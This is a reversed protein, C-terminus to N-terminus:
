NRLLSHLRGLSAAGPDRTFLAYREKECPDLVARCFGKDFYGESDRLSAIAKCATLAAAGKVRSSNVTEQLADDCGTEAAQSRPVEGKGNGNALDRPNRGGKRFYSYQPIEAGRNSNQCTLPLSLTITSPKCRSTSCTTSEM